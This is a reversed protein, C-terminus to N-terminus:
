RLRQLRKHYALIGDLLSQALTQRHASSRMRSASGAHSIFGLEVLVGPCDLHKLVLFRARKLGRDPGGLRQTMGRQMHYGLLANWPDYDNGRFRTNDRPAPEAFKSSAQYQPTLAFTEYGSAAKNTAANFHISIFLDADARNAVQPRRELPVFVDTDRTMVVSYGARRLLHRLRKAIDLALSKEKLGYANNRAGSDKGGHGVDLVITRLEPPNAFLQPTLISQLVHQYDAKALYLRGRNELTPFGLYVPLRNIYLIKKGKGVDINTWKSRLRFTKYGQLWYAKMGFRSGATALDIYKRGDHWIEVSQASLPALGSLFVLALLLRKRFFVSPICRSSISPRAEARGYPESPRVRLLADRWCKPFFLEVPVTPYRARCFSALPSHTHQRAPVGM